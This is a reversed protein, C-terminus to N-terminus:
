HHMHTDPLQRKTETDLSTEPTAAPEAAAVPPVAHPQETLAYGLVEDIWRVPRIDLHQKINKPIEALDRENEHPILVIEIGGRHAALLKEKLGGIPLIEGRLTIEGTMAVNSRIPIRTLASVLATCMAVGASPGDKPTAGEPVHIHLDNKQHFDADIGLTEARSRVVTLAAQISEQMVDGLQGTYTFNGKGPVLASEIRLLEGGVETWALGTVQGVQDYEEARGFRFRRVGLYKELTKPTIVLATDRKKLLIEKVVKRCIKSIERELNRVGAERTYYRIVDRLVTERIVLEDRKLGNNKMQKPALYREAISVKEDETYGSLRIVEMRDLLAPPINLTNATAVFMVESLDFDVELYHDNFTHNQEPDLVELLASAPDGRFDMAMKDIEDLLFFANRSNVKALNQIIKGPLAGIYTRRHGRIEAEDRVGGLSMRVFKRNTARAISQGLSTKGVGPPGVLCLIPGKLKRVRQQVALYELIREKVKELGFHDADLVKEAVSINNRIRTRVKWPVSILTDIYNRVVAAEASMPSMLKLKNLEALAKEHVDKPMGVAHIRRSLEEFENPADELEGLEKQIAKMQENLYYERQNKEMQRKVRGRIRKEMQLLDNEAEMLGMLHEIRESIDIMELVRQKEELKLAMHAAMTDALRSADDISALSTLVEPPVKKNLKVYQEFLTVASRMLVEQEREDITLTEEQSAVFASFYGHKDSFKAATARHHGEVLVKVTGDPLKLLQLINALTGVVHLDKIDPDDVDASKQAVLFIKKNHNMATELAKISKDRGVFLPIVMHPYVVVDRLPLVAVEQATSSFFDSESPREVM